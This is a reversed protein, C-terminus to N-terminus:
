QIVYSNFKKQYTTKSSLIQTFLSIVTKQSTVGHQKTTDVNPFFSPNLLDRQILRVQRGFYVTTAESFDTYSTVLFGNTSNNVM